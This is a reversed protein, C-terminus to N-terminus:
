SRNEPKKVARVAYAEVFSELKRRESRTRPAFQVGMGEAPAAGVRVVKGHLVVDSIEGNIMPMIRVDKGIPPPDATKVFIGSHSLNIAPGSSCRDGNDWVVRLEVPFRPAPAADPLADLDPLDIIIDDLEEAM